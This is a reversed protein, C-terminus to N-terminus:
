KSEPLLKLFDALSNADAKKFHDNESITEQLQRIKEKLTPKDNRSILEAFDFELHSKTTYYNHLLQYLYRYKTEKNETKAQAAFYIEKVEEKDAIKQIFNTTSQPNERIEWRQAFHQLIFLYPDEKKQCIQGLEEKKQQCIEDPDLPLSHNIVECEIEQALLAIALKITAQKGATDGDLFLIIKKKLKKLLNFQQSSLSTGLAALCNNVGAQTLSIVDFFGEVLYCFDVEPMQKVRFYNYLFHSKQYGEYNPLHLYKNQTIDLGTTEIKRAAFAVIEGKQNQLPIILQNETFFDAIKNSEKNRLLNTLLLNKAAEDDPLFLNTLQQHNVVCGLGFQQITEETLQRKQRLYASVKKGSVSLLNHQYIEAVLSFLKKEKSTEEQELCNEESGVYYGLQKIEQKAKVVSIKKIQSKKVVEAIIRMNLYPQGFEAEYVLVKDSVIKDGVEKDKQYDISLVKNIISEQGKIIKVRDKSVFLLKVAEQQKNELQTASLLFVGFVILKTPFNGKNNNDQNVTPQKKSTNEKTQQEEKQPFFRFNQHEAAIEQAIQQFTEKGAKADGKIDIKKREPPHNLIDDVGAFVENLLKRNEPKNLDIEAIKKKYYEEQIKKRFPENKDKVSAVIIFLDTLFVDEFVEATSDSDAISKRYIQRKPAMFAKFIKEARLDKQLYGKPTFFVGEKALKKKKINLEKGRYGGLFFNSEIVRHCPVVASAFPNKRLAQGVARPSSRLIEAIIKYTSVYGPPIQACLQYVQFQFKTFEKQKDMNHLKTKLLMKELSVESGLAIKIIECCFFSMEKQQLGQARNYEFTYKIAKKFDENNIAKRGRSYAIAPAEKYIIKEKNETIEKFIFASFEKVFVAKNKNGFLGPEDPHVEDYFSNLTTEVINEEGESMKEFEDIFLICPEGKTEKVVGSLFLKIREEKEKRDKGAFQGGTAYAFFSGSDKAVAQALLTKGTGPPGYLLVHEPEIPFKKNKRDQSDIIYKKREEAAQKKAEEEQTQKKRAENEGSLIDGIATDPFQKGLALFKQWTFFTRERFQINTQPLYDKLKNATLYGQLTQKHSYIVFAIQKTSRARSKLAIMGELAVYSSGRFGTIELNAIKEVTYNTKEDLSYNKNQFIQDSLEFM